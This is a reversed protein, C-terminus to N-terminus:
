EIGEWVTKLYDWRTKLWARVADEDADSIEIEVWRYLGKRQGMFFVFLTDFDLENDATAKKWDWRFVLNYDMDANGEADFFDQWSEYEQGCNNIGYNGLNCYYPHDIEWLHKNM